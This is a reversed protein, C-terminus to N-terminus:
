AGIIVTDATAYTLGDFFEDRAFSERRGPRHGAQRGPMAAASPQAPQHGFM